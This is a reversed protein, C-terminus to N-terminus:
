CYTLAILMERHRREELAKFEKEYEESFFSRATTISTENYAPFDVASVDFLKKIKTITRTHTERDYSCERVIFSFSMKDIRRKSIDRYLNRHREDEKDLYAAIELGKDTIYHKLSGNRNRAYVTSDNEGHNRNFIFDSMDCEDLSGRAIVEKYEIGDIECIVTPTNFLIPIGRLILEDEPKNESLDFPAVARYERENPKYPM